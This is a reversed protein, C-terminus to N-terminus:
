VETWPRVLGAVTGAFDTADRTVLMLGHVERRRRDAPGDRGLFAVVGANPRPKTWESVVNTDLPFSMPRHRTAPGQRAHGDPRVLAVAIRCPIGGSYRQPKEAM